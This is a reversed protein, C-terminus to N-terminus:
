NLCEENNLLSNGNTYNYFYFESLRKNSNFKIVNLLLVKYLIMSMGLLFPCTKDGQM